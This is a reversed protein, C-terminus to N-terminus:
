SLFYNKLCLTKEELRVASVAGRGRRPHVSLSNPLHQSSVYVRSESCGIRRSVANGSAIRLSLQNVTRLPRGLLGSIGRQSFFPIVTCM